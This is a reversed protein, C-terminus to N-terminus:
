KRRYLEDGKLVAEYVALGFVGAALREFARILNKALLVVSRDRLPARGDKLVDRYERRGDLDEAVAAGSPTKLRSSLVGLSEEPVSDVNAVAGLEYRGEGSGSLRKASRNDSVLVRYEIGDL